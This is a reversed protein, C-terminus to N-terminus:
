ATVDDGRDIQSTASKVLDKHDQCLYFIILFLNPKFSNSIKKQKNKNQRIM